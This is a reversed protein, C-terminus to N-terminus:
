IFTPLQSIEWDTRVPMVRVATMTSFNVYQDGANWVAFSFCKPLTSGTLGGRSSVREKLLSDKSHWITLPITVPSQDVWQYPCWKGQPWSEMRDEFHCASCDPYVLFPIGVLHSCSATTKYLTTLELWTDSNHHKLDPQAVVLRLIKLLCTM